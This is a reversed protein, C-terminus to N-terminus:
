KPQVNQLLSQPKHILDLPSRTLGILRDTIHTYRQTTRISAHGLLAQVIRIDYGSELLHTAFCHRLTHLTAKKSLGAQRVIKKMVQSVASPCIHTKPKQGPFLYDGKLRATKYHERLLALVTEGLMVYRDKNGKGLRVHILMRQSDIDTPKLACVESIRLGAGYATALIAKYKVSKIAAFLALVEQMSLVEPLSKPKKPYPLHEVVKPQRLTIRYLFKLASVYISQLGASVNREQTLYLLFKRVEAEGMEEPPRMFYKAFHRACRLYARTTHPSFRKLLLDAKMQEQLKGMTKRRKKLSKLPFKVLFGIM